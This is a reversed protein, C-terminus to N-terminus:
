CFKGQLIVRRSMASIPFTAHLSVQSVMRAVQGPVRDQGTITPSPSSSPFNIISARTLRRHRLTRLAIKAFMGGGGGRDRETVKRIRKKEIGEVAFVHEGAAPLEMRAQIRDCPTRRRHPPATPSINAVAGTSTGEARHTSHASPLKGTTDLDLQIGEVEEREESARESERGGCVGRHQSHAYLYECHHPQSCSEERLLELETCSTLLPPPLHLGQM